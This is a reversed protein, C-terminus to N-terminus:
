PERHGRRLRDAPQAPGARATDTAASTDASVIDRPERDDLWDAPSESPWAAQEVLASAIGGPPQDKLKWAFDDGIRRLNAAARRQGVVTTEHIARGFEDAMGSARKGPEREPHTAAGPAPKGTKAGAAPGFRQTPDSAPSRTM